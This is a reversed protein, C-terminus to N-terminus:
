FITRRVGLLSELVLGLWVLMTYLIGKLTRWSDPGRVQNKLLLAGNECFVLQLDRFERFVVVFIGYSPGWSTIGCGLWAVCAYYVAYGELDEM